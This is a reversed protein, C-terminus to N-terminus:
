ENNNLSKEETELEKMTIWKNHLKRYEVIATEEKTLWLHNWELIGEDDSAESLDCEKCRKMQFETSKCFEADWQSHIQSTLMPARFFAPQTAVHVHDRGDQSDTM